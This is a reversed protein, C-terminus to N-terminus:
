GLENPVTQYGPCKIDPRVVGLTLPNIKLRVIAPCISGVGEALGNRGYRLLDDKPQGSLTTFSSTTLCLGKV